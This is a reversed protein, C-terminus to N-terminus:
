KFIFFTPVSLRLFFVMMNIALEFLEYFQLHDATYVEMESNIKVGPSCGLVMKKLPWQTICKAVPDLYLNTQIIPHLKLEIKYQNRSDEWQHKLRYNIPRKDAYTCEKHIADINGWNSLDWVPRFWWYLLEFLQRDNM